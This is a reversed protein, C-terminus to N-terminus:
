TLMGRASAPFAPQAQRTTRLVTREVIELVNQSAATPPRDIRRRGQLFVHCGGIFARHLALSEGPHDPALLEIVEVHM